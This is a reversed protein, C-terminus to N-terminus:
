DLITLLYELHERPYLAHKDVKQLREYFEDMVLAIQGYRKIIAQLPKSLIGKKSKLAEQILLPWKDKGSTNVIICHLLNVAVCCQDYNIHKKFFEIESKSLDFTLSLSLVFDSFYLSTGDTLINEFHADFHLFNQTKLFRSIETLERQIFPILEENTGEALQAWAM